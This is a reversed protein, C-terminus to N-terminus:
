HHAAVAYGIAVGLTRAGLAEGYTLGLYIGDAFALGPVVEGPLMVRLGLVAQLEDAAPILRTGEARDGPGLARSVRVVALPRGVRFAGTGEWHLELPLSFSFPVAGGSVGALGV